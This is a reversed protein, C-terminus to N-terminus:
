YNTLLIYLTNMGIEYDKVKWDILIKDYYTERFDRFYSMLVVFVIVASIGVLVHLIKQKEEEAMSSVSGLLVMILVDILVLVVITVVIVLALNKMMATTKKRSYIYEYDYILRYVYKCIECSPKVEKVNKDGLWHKLCELHIYRMSGQCKCPKSIPKDENGAEYCIKCLISEQEDKANLALEHTMNSVSVFSNQISNNDKLNLTDIVKIQADTENNTISLKYKHGTVVKKPTNQATNLTDDLTPQIAL